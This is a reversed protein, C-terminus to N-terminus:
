LKVSKESSSVSRFYLWLPMNTFKIPVLHRERQMHKIVSLPLALRFLVSRLCSPNGHLSSRSSWPPM